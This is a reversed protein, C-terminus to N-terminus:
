GRAEERIEIYGDEEAEPGQALIQLMDMVYKLMAIM